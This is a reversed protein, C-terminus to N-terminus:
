SLGHLIYKTLGHSNYDAAYIIHPDSTLVISEFQSDCQCSNLLDLNHNFVLLYSNKDPLATVRNGLKQALQFRNLFDKRTEPNAVIYIYEESIFINGNFKINSGDIVLKGKKISYKPETLHFTSIEEILNNEIKYKKIRNFTKDCIYLYKRCPSMCMSIYFTGVKSFDLNRDDLIHYDIDSLISGNHDCLLLKHSDQLAGFIVYLSDNIVKANATITPKNYHIKTVEHVVLSDELIDVKKIKDTVMDFVFLTNRFIDIHPTSTLLENPGRGKHCVSSIIDGTELNALHVLGKEKIDMSGFFGYSTYFCDFSFMVPYNEKLQIGYIDEATDFYYDTSKYNIDSNTASCCCFIYLSILLILHRM